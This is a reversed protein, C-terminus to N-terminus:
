ELAASGAQLDLIPQIPAMLAQLLLERTRMVILSVKIRKIRSLQRVAMTSDLPMQAPCCRDMYYISIAEDVLMRLKLYRGIAEGGHGKSIGYSIM